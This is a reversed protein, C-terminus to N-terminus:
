LLQFFIFYKWKFKHFKWYIEIFFNLFFDVFFFSFSQFQFMYLFMDFLYKENIRHIMKQLWNILLLINIYHIRKKWKIWDSMCIKEFFETKKKTKRFSEFWHSIGLFKKWIKLNKLNIKLAFSSVHRELKDEHKLPKHSSDLLCVWTCM